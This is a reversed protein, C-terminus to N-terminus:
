ADGILGGNDDAAQFISNITEQTLHPLNDVFRSNMQVGIEKVEKRPKLEVIKQELERIEGMEEDYVIKLTYKKM